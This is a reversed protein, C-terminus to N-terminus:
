PAAGRQQPHDRRERGRVYLAGELKREYADSERSNSRLSGIRKRPM